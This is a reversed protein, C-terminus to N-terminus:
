ITLELEERQKLGIAFTEAMILTVFGIVFDPVSIYDFYNTMYGKIRFVESIQYANWVQRLAELIAAALLSWGILRLLRVNRWTFVEKRNVHVIFKIFAVLMTIILASVTLMLLTDATEHATSRAYGTKAMMQFPWIKTKEGTVDNTIDGTGMDLWRDPILSVTKASTMDRMDQESYGNVGAEYGQVFASGIIYLTPAISFALAVFVLVCLVNLKQKMIINNRNRM